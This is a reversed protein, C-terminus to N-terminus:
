FSNILPCGYGISKTCGPADFSCFYCFCLYYHNTKFAEYNTNRCSRNIRTCLCIDAISLSVRLRADTNCSAGCLECRQDYSYHGTFVYKSCFEISCPFCCVIGSLCRTYIFFQKISCFTKFLITRKSLTGTFCIEMNSISCISLKFLAGPFFRSKSSYFITRIATHLYSYLRSSMFLAKAM